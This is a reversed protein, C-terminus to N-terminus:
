SSVEEHKNLYTDIYEIEADTLQFLQYISQDDWMTDVDVYPLSNYFSTSFNDNNWYIAYVFKFLKSKFVSDIKKQSSKKFTIQSVTSKSTPKIGSAKDWYVNLKNYHLRQAMSIVIAGNDKNEFGTSVQKFQFSKGTKIKKLIDSTIQNLSRLPLQEFWGSDVQYTSELTVANFQPSGKNAIVFWSFSNEYSGV